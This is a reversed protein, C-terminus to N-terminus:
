KISELPINLAEIIAFEFIKSDNEYGIVGSFRQKLENWRELIDENVQLTIKKDFDHGDFITKDNEFDNFDFTLIDQMNQLEKESYPLTEVLDEVDYKNLMTDVLEALKINDNPFRTENTEVALRIAEEKSIEGKNCVIAKKIGLNILADYRHNGNVIEYKDKLKRVILNEVQGNRNINNELDKLKKEDDEKYNWDAKILKSVEMLEYGYDKLEM